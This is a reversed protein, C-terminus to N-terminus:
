DASLNIIKSGNSDNLKGLSMEYLVDFPECRLVEFMQVIKAKPEPLYGLVQQIQMM